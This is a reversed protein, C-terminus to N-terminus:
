RSESVRLFPFAARFLNWALQSCKAILRFPRIVYYLFFLTSPLNLLLLESITPGTVCRFVYRTKDAVRETVRFHFAIRERERLTGATKTALLRRVEVALADAKADARINRSVEVPLEAAMLDRALALGLFLMRSSGQHKARELVQAWDLTPSASIMGAIDSIWSLREWCHKSGHVCLFLLLDECTLIPVQTNALRFYQIRQWVQSGDYAYSITWPLIQWHVDLEIGTVPQIFHCESACLLLMQERFSSVSHRLLYGKELLLRKLKSFDSQHILVDLDASVRLSHSGYAIVGLLPGKFFIAPIDAIQLSRALRALERLLFVNRRANARFYAHLEDLIPQPILNPDVSRLHWWLLPMLGHQRAKRLFTTWDLSQALLPRVRENEEPNRWRRACRLLLEFEVAELPTTSSM